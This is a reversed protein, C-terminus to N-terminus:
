EAAAEVAVEEVIVTDAEVVAVEEVAPVEEQAETTSAKPGCAAFVLAVACFLFVKKM